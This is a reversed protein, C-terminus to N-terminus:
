HVYSCLHARISVYIRVRRHARERVCVCVCVCVCVGRWGHTCIFAWHILGICWKRQSYSCIFYGLPRIHVSQSLLHPPLPVSPYFTAISSSSPSSFLVSDLYIYICIYTFHPSLLLLLAHFSSNFLLFSSPPLPILPHSLCLSLTVPQQRHTAEQFLNKKQPLTVM